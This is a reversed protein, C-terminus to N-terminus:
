YDTRFTFEVAIRGCNSPKRPKHGIYIVFSFTQTIGVLIHLNMKNIEGRENIENPIERWPVTKPFISNSPCGTSIISGLWFFRTASTEVLTVVSSIEDDCLHCICAGM